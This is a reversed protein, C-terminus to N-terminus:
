GGGERQPQESNDERPGGGHADDAPGARGQREAHHDCQGRELQEDREQLGIHKRDEGADIEVVSEVRAVSPGYDECDCDRSPAKSMSGIAAFYMPAPIAQMPMPPAPTPTPM